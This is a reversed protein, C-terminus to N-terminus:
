GIARGWCFNGFNVNKPDENLESENSQWCDKPTCEERISASETHRPEIGSATPFNALVM